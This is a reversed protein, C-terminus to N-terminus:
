TQIEPKARVESLKTSSNLIRISQRVADESIVHAAESMPHAAYLGPKHPQEKATKIVRLLNRMTLPASDSLGTEAWLKAGGNLAHLIPSLRMAHDKNKRWFPALAWVGDGSTCDKESGDCRTFWEAM